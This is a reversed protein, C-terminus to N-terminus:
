PIVVTVTSGGAELKAPVVRRSEAYLIEIEYDGLFGRTTFAGSDDTYGDINTWWKNFVLDNYADANPKATWDHSYM